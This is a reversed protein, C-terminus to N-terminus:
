IIRNALNRKILEQHHDVHYATFYLMERLTIKGLLPHPLILVDLETETFHTIKSNLAKIANNIKKILEMKQNVSIVKPVFRSPATGGAELKGQYRKVLEKYTKSPRNAKGFLLKLLFKPLVLAQNLPKVSLYIHDLQQGATWKDAYSYEFEEDTLNSIYDTFSRHNSYIKTTIEEIIMLNREM